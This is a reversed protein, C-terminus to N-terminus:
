PTVKRWRRGKSLQAPWEMGEYDGAIRRVLINEEGIATIRLRIPHKVEALGEEGALVTGVTWGNRRCRQADTM